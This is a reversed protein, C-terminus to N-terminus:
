GHLFSYLLYAAIVIVLSSLLYLFPTAATSLQDDLVLATDREPPTGPLEECPVANGNASAGNKGMMDEEESGAAGERPLRILLGQAFGLYFSRIGKKDEDESYPQV